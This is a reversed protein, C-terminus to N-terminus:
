TTMWKKKDTDNFRYYHTTLLDIDNRAFDNAFLKTVAAFNGDTGDVGVFKASPLANLIATKRALWSAKLVAYDNYPSAKYTGNNFRPENGLSFAYLSAGLKQVAYVAEAVADADTPKSLNIGYIVRCPTQAVFGAFADIDVTAIEGGNRGGGSPKWVQTEVASGGIRIVCPGLAKFLNVVNTNGAVFIRTTFESKEFSFGVFDTGVVGLETNIVRANVPTGSLPPQTDVYQNPGTPLTPNILTNSGARSFSIVSSSCGSVLGGLGLGLGNKLFGRRSRAFDIDPPVKNMSAGLDANIRILM